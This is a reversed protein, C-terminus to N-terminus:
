RSPPLDEASDPRSTNLGSKPDDADVDGTQAPTKAATASMGPNVTQGAQPNVPDAKQGCAGLAALVCLLSGARLARNM